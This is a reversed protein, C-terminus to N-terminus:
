DFIGKLFSWSSDDDPNFDETVIRKGNSDYGPIVNEDAKEMDKTVLAYASASWKTVEETTLDSWDTDDAALFTQLSVNMLAVYKTKRKAGAKEFSFMAEMGAEHKGTAVQTNFFSKALQVRESKMGKDHALKFSAIATYDTKSLNPINNDLDDQSYTGSIISNKLNNVLVPKNVSSFNNTGFTEIAQRQTEYEKTTLGADLFGEKLLALREKISGGNISAELLKTYLLAKNETRQASNSSHNARGLTKLSSVLADIKKGYQPHKAFSQGGPAISLIGDVANRWRFTPDEEAMQHIVAIHNDLFMNGLEYNTRPPVDNEHLLKFNEYVALSNAQTQEKDFTGDAKVSLVSANNGYFDLNTNKNINDDSTTQANIILLNNNQVQISELEGTLTAVAGQLYAASVSSNKELSKIFNNMGKAFFEGTEQPNLGNDRAEKALRRGENSGAGKGQYGQTIAQKKKNKDVRDETIIAASKTVLGLGELFGDMGDKQPAVSVVNTKTVVGSRLIGQETEVAGIKVLNTRQERPM